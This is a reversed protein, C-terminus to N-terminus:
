GFGLSKLTNGLLSLHAMSRVLFDCRWWGYHRKPLVNMKKTTPDKQMITTPTQWHSNKSTKEERWTRGKM